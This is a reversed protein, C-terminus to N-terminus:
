AGRDRDADHWLLAMWAFSTDGAAIARQVAHEFAREARPHSAEGLFRAVEFAREYQGSDALRECAAASGATAPHDAAFAAVEDATPLHDCIALRAIENGTLFRSFRVNEPLADFGVIRDPKVRDVSFVAPGSARSYESGGMRGVNDLRSAQLRGDVLLDRDVHFLLVECLFLNGSGPQDGLPVLQWLKCELQFPSEAVRMPAVRQSPLPTLGCKTWENVEAPFEAASLNVQEVIDYPVSQIVCEETARLNDYTDKLSGDRLSRTTSFGVIPPAAGFANFFSFPALNPVGDTSLTSVLAIPRPCVGGTLLRYADVAPIEGARFSTMNPQHEDNSM